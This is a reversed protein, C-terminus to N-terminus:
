GKSLRVQGLYAYSKNNEVIRVRLMEGPLAGAGVIIVFKFRFRVVSLDVSWLIYPVLFTRNM